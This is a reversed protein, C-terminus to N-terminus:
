STNLFLYFFFLTFLNLSKISSEGRKGVNLRCVMFTWGHFLFSVLSVEFSIYATQHQM